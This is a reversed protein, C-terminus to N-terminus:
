SCMSTSRTMPPELYPINGFVGYSHSSIMVGDLDAEAPVQGEAQLWSGVSISTYFFSAQKRGERLANDGWHHQPLGVAGTQYKHLVILGLHLLM